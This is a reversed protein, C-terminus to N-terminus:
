NLIPPTPGPIFGGPPLTPAVPVDPPLTPRPTPTAPSIEQPNTERWNFRREKLSNPIQFVFSPNFNFVESPNNNDTLSRQLRVGSLSVVSGNVNLAFTDQRSGLTGTNFTGNTLYIGSISSVSPSISINGSTIFMLFNNSNVNINSNINLNGDVFIVYRGSSINIPGNITLSGQNLSNKKILYWSYNDSTSISPNGLNSLSTISINGSTVGVNNNEWDNKVGSPVRNFFYNYNFNSFSSIDTNVLWGTESVRGAGFSFSGSYVPIGPTIAGVRLNFYTTQTPLISSINGRTIVDANNVQWWSRPIITVNGTAQCTFSPNSSVTAIANYTYTGTGTTATVTTTFPSTSTTSPNFSLASSNSPTFSIRSINGVLNIVQPPTLISPTITRSDGLGNLTISGVSIQCPLFYHWWLDTYGNAPSNVNVSSGVTPPNGHCNTANYCLTYGVAYGSPVSVSVTHNGVVNTGVFYYPNNTNPSGGDLYVTQSSAPSAAANGPYIVKYGQITSTPPPPTPDPEPEPTPQSGGGGGGSYRSECSTDCAFTHSYYGPGGNCLLYHEYYNYYTRGYCGQGNQNNYCVEEPLRSGCYLMPDSTRWCTAWVDKITLFSFTAFLFLILYIRLFLNSLITKEKYKM